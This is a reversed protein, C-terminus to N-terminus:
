MHRDDVESAKASFDAGHHVLDESAGGLAAHDHGARVHRRIDDRARNGCAGATEDQLWILDVVEDRRDALCIDVELLQASQLADVARRCCAAPGASDYGDIAGLTADPARRDR